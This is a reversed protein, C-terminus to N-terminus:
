DESKTFALSKLDQEAKSIGYKSALARRNQVFKKVENIIQEAQEKTLRFYECVEM